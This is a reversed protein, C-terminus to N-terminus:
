YVTVLICINDNITGCLGLAGVAAVVVGVCIAVYGASFIFNFENDVDVFQHFTTDARLWIGVSLGAVGLLQFVCDFCRARIAYGSNQQYTRRM